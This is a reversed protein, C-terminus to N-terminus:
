RRVLEVRYKNEMLHILTDYFFVVLILIYLSYNVTIYIFQIYM